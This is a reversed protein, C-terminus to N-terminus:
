WHLKVALGGPLAAVIASGAATTVVKTRSLGPVYTIWSMTWSPDTSLSGSVVVTVVILEWGTTKRLIGNLDDFKPIRDPTMGMARQNRLFEDSARGGLVQQQRAFLTAWVEHDSATYSSWPQEVVATTYVPVYGKDTLQHEIRNPSAATAPTATTNMPGM